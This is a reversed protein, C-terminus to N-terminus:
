INAKPRAPGSINLSNCLGKCNMRRWRKMYEKKISKIQLILLCAGPVLPCTKLTYILTPYYVHFCWKGRNMEKAVAHVVANFGNVKRATRIPRAEMFLRARLTQESHGLEMSLRKLEEDVLQSLAQIAEDERIAKAKNHEKIAAHTKDDTRNNLRPPYPAAIAPPM